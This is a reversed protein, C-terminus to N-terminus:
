QSLRLRFPFAQVLRFTYTEPLRHLYTSIYSTLSPISIKVQKFFPPQHANPYRGVPPFKSTNSFHCGTLTIPQKHIHYPTVLNKKYMSCVTQKLSTRSFRCQLSPTNFTISSSKEVTQFTTFAISKRTSFRRLNRCLLM